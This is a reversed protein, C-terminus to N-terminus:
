VGSQQPSAFALLKRGFIVSRRNRPHNGSDIGRETLALKFATMTMPRIRANECWLAYNQFFQSTEIVADTEEFTEENLWVSLSDASALHAQTKERVAAPVDLGRAQWEICGRIAWNLVGSAESAMIKEDLKPIRKHPPVTVDWGIDQLRRAIGHGSGVGPLYNTALHIKGVPRFDFFEARMFRASMTDEGTLQKVLEDDLKKGASTETTSLLRKGVMRAVDNPIGDAQKALLTSRPVSQAYDGLVSMLVRMFVGKGNQGDGHHIFMVQEQTSGTLTYGVVRALYARREEDPMVGFLFDEWMPCTADPDFRVTSQQMLYLGRDHAFLEGSRLDVIGNAVNFLLEPRDFHDMHVHLAPHAQLVERAAALKPRMRQGRAFKEFRERESLREEKTPKDGPEFEPKEDSYNGAEDSLADVTAVVRTWVATNAGKFTWRGAEYTAWQETDTIWCIETGYRDVVRQANGIDDWDRAPMPIPLLAKPEEPAMWGGQQERQPALATAGHSQPAADSSPPPPPPVPRLHQPREGFRRRRLERAAESHDGRHNLLAYAGFKTYPKEADFETSTTFVYLRDRDAARGTTASAGPDSKGPRRWYTTQGIVRLITWGHPLLIESWETRAEFDDGPSLGGEVPAPRDSSFLFAAAEDLPEVSSGSSAAPVVPEEAPVADLMRSIAHLARHEDATITPCTAPGGALLEYPKGSPHVPGHSPATVVFGGEGRTEIWGRLIKKNPYRVLLDREDETYEDERALRSALKTNGPVPVGSVRYHFHLGGSPSRELWGTAIRQWLDTLGSAEIIEVLQALIGEEVARGELEYMELNGSVAGTVIGVGPHGEAFHTRLEAENKRQSQFLKWPGRPFKTGDTRVVVVSCGAANLVLAADLTSQTETM